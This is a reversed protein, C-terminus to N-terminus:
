PAVQVRSFDRCTSQNEVGSYWSVRQALRASVVRAQPLDGPLYRGGAIEDDLIRRYFDTTSPASCARRRLNELMEADDATWSARGVIVIRDLIEAFIVHVETFALYERANPIPSVSVPVIRRAALGNLTEVLKQMQKPTASHMLSYSHRLLREADLSPPKDASSLQQTARLEDDLAAIYEDLSEASHARPCSMGILLALTIAAIRM